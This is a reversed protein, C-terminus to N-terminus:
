KKSDSEWNNEEDKEKIIGYVSLYIMSTIGELVLFSFVVFLTTFIWWNNDIAKIDIYPISRSLFEKNISKEMPLFKNEITAFEIKKEDSSNYFGELLKHDDQGSKTQIELLKNYVRNEIISDEVTQMIGAILGIVVLFPLIMFIIKWVKKKTLRFSEDIYTKAKHIEKSYLLAYYSFALRIALYIFWVLVILFLVLAIGGILFPSLGLSIKAFIAFPVILIFGVVIPILLYLGIWGLIGIYARFHKGSFYLNKTYPLKEGSLYSKYVNQMLFNGYTYTCIFITVICLLLFITSLITVTNNLLFEEPSTSLGLKSYSSFYQYVIIGIFPLSVLFGILNAYLFVGIKSLNWHFFNKYLLVIHQFIRKLHAIYINM